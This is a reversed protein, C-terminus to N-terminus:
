WAWLADLRPLTTPTTVQNRLLMVQAGVKLQICDPIARGINDTITRKMSSVSPLEAVDAAKVEVVEGPLEVLRDLNEKDVDKNISYLKTPVIGDDSLKRSVVCSNLISLQSDTLEGVRVDNLLGSFTDDNQRVVENLTITNINDSHIYGYEDTYGLGLDNWVPERLM